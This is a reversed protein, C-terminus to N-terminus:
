DITFSDSSGSDYSSHSHNSNDHYNSNNDENQHNNEVDLDTTGMFLHPYYLNLPDNLDNSNNSKGAYNKTKKSDIPYGNYTQSTFNKYKSRKTEKDDKFLSSLLWIAGIFGAIIMLFYFICM